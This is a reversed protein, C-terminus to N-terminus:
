LLPCKGDDKKEMKRSYKQFGVRNKRQSVQPTRGGGNGSSGSGGDGEVNVVDQVVVPAMISVLDDQYCM